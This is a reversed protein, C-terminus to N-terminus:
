VYLRSTITWKTSISPITSMQQKYKRKM